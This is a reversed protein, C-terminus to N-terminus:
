MRFNYFNRVKKKQQFINDRKIIDRFTINRIIDSSSINGTYVNSYVSVLGQISVISKVNPCANVFALGHTFESGHIHVLDPNFKDSVEKWYKELRKNYKLAPAGPILYYIIEGDNFELVKNGSYVTAIALKIKKNNKIEGALGNLWGGFASKELGLREAPYPFITNVIWLIRM